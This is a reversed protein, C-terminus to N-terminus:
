YGVDSPIDDKPNLQEYLVQKLSSSSTSRQKSLDPDVPEAVCRIIGSFM